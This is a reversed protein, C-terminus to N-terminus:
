AARQRPSKGGWGGHRLERSTGSEFNGVFAGCEATVPCAACIKKATEYTHGTEPFFVEPGVQACLASDMWAINLAM